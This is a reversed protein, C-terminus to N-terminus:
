SRRRFGFLGLLATGLLAFAPPVPVVSPDQPTGGGTGGATTDDVDTTGTGPDITSSIYTLRTGGGPKDAVDVHSFLEIDNGLFDTFTGTPAEAQSPVADWHNLIDVAAIAVEENLLVDGYFVGDTSPTTFGSFALGPAIGGLIQNAEGQCCNHDTGVMIGGGSNALAAVQNILLGGTAGTPGPFDTQADRDISRIYLSGDLMLDDKGSAYFDKTAQIDAASFLSSSTTSDFILVDYDTAALEASLLGSSTVDVYTSDFVTGDGYDDIFMSMEERLANPAQNSWIPTTDWWLVNTTASATVPLAAVLLGAAFLRITM